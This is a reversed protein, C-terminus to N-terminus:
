GGRDGTQVEPASGAPPGEYAERDGYRDAQSPDPTASPPAGEYPKRNGYRHPDTLPPSHAPVNGESPKTAHSDPAGAPDVPSQETGPLDKVREPVGYVAEDSGKSTPAEAPVAGEGDGKDSSTEHESPSKDNEPPSKITTQTGAGGVPPQVGAPAAAIPEKAPVSESAPVTSAAEHNAYLGAAGIGVVVLATVFWARRRIMLRVPKLAM